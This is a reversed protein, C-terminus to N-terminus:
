AKAINNYKRKLVNFVFTPSCELHISIDKYTKGQKRLILIERAKEEYDVPVRTQIVGKLSKIGPINFAKERCVYDQNAYENGIDCLLQGTKQYHEICANKQSCSSCLNKM